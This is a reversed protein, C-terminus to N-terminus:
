GIYIILLYNFLYGAGYGVGFMPLMYLEKYINLFYYRKMMISSILVNIMPNLAIVWIVTEFSYYTFALPVLMYLASTQIGKLVSDLRAQGHAVFFEKSLSFGVSILSLSLIQLMWGAEEYRKDYFINIFLYGTKFLFGSFFVTIIDIKSRIKYYIESLRKPQERITESLIPFFVSSVLRQLIDKIANALFFAVTYVGLKESSILGGLLLRDGQNLLFGLISSLFIWKGFNFIEHAAEKDWQLRSREGIFSSHSLLMRIVSSVLTGIVLAWIDRQCWALFITYGLGIAQSFIDISVTKSLALKRTLAMLYISNLGSILFTSSM